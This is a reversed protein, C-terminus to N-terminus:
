ARPTRPLASDIIRERVEPVSELLHGRHPITSLSAHHLRRALTQVGRHPSLTDEVGHWIVVPRTLDEPSFPWRQAHLLIEDAVGGTGGETARRFGKLLEGDSLGEILRADSQEVMRRVARAAVAPSRRILRDQVSAQIRALVRSKGVIRYALLNGASVGDQQGDTGIEVGTSVLVCRDVREPMAAAVALAHPGGGSVGLVVFRDIRLHDVVAEVDRPWDRLTRWPMRDSEGMGPRDIAIGRAGAERLAGDWDEFDAATGPMGHHLLVPVGGPDGWEVFALRRSSGPIALYTSANTPRRDNTM